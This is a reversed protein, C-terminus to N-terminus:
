ARSAAFILREVVDQLREGDARLAKLAEFAAPSVKVKHTQEDPPQLPEVLSGGLLENKVRLLTNKPWQHGYVVTENSM